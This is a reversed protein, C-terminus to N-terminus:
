PLFSKIAIAINIVDKVMTVFTAIMKVRDLNKPSSDPNKKQAKPKSSPDRKKVKQKVAVM